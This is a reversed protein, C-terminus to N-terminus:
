VCALVSFSPTVSTLANLVTPSACHSCSPAAPLAAAALLQRVPCPPLSASGCSRRPACLAAPHAAARARGRCLAVQLFRTKEGKVGGRVRSFVGTALSCDCSEWRKKPVRSKGRYVCLTKM